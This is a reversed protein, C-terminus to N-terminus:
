PRLRREAGLAASLRAHRELHHEPGGFLLRLAMLRKYYAGIELEDTVGNGGHLQVAQEAIFRAAEGSKAKAGSAARGRVVADSGDLMAAHLAAGRTTELQLKMEVMRHRLVQNSSLPRGFQHRTKTYDITQKLLVDMCGVAEWSMAVLAADISAEIGFRADADEGVLAEDTLSLDDLDLTASRRLDVTQWPTIGIRHDPMPIAFVRLSAAEEAKVRAVILLLDASQAGFVLHKRGKLRWGDETRTALTAIQDLGIGAGPEAIAATVRLKGEAIEPLWRAKQEPTGLRSILSPALIAMEVYPEIVLARGMMEGVIGTEVAGLGLGGHEQPVIMGLWGLEAFRQWVSDDFGTEISIARQATTYQQALFGAGAEALMRQEDNFSLDM